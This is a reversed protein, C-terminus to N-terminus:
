EKCSVIFRYIIIFPYDECMSKMDLNHLIYEASSMTILQIKLYWSWEQGYEHGTLSFYVKKM